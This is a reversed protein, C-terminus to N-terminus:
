QNCPFAEELAALTVLGIEFDWEAYKEVYSKMIFFVQDRALPFKPCFLRRKNESQIRADYWWLGTVIGQFYADTFPTTKPNGRM